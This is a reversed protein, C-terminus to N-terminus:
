EPIEVEAGKFSVGWKIHTFGHNREALKNHYALLFVFGFLDWLDAQTANLDTVGKSILIGFAKRRAHKLAEMDIDAEDFSVSLAQTESM